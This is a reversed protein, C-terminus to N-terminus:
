WMARMHEFYPVIRADFSRFGAIVVDGIALDLAGHAMMRFGEATEVLCLLYPGFARLAPKPARHVITAAQVVGRGSATRTEPSLSGCAPCFSRRFYWSAACHPCRQFRVVAVGSTWDGDSADRATM